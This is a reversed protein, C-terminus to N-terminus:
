ASGGSAAVPRDILRALARLDRGARGAKPSLLGGRDQARRIAPDFRLSAVPSLGLVREVDRPAVEARGARNIVIRCRGSPENMRLRTMARRAGYLSFLDLAIVLLVDDSMGIGARAVDDTARPIHLVVEDCAGALLAVCASYLGSPLELGAEVESPALLVSFGRAHAFLADEIHDPGLEDMVPVLDAITRTEQDPGIGLAVTVDAFSSDLDVLVVRRGEDALVASLHTAVFTTGAGGRAGYIALVRGRRRGEEPRGTRSRAILRSLEDREEPWCFVGSAGVDIAERLVPVTMEEAVLVLGKGYGSASPHRIDSALTPCLVAMDVHSDDLAKLLRGAETLAAVVEIRPDRELYDLVEQHFGLDHIGIVVRARRAPWGSPDDAPRSSPSGPELGTGESRM